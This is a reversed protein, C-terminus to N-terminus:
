YDMPINLRLLVDGAGGAIEEGTTGSVDYLGVFVEHPDLDKDVYRICISEQEVGSIAQTGDFIISYQM